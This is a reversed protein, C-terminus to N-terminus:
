LQGDDTEIRLWGLEIWVWVDWNRFIWGLIIGGM